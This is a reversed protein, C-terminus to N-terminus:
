LINSKTIKPFVPCQYTIPNIIYIKSLATKRIKLWELYRGESSSDQSGDYKYISGFHPRIPPWVRATRM